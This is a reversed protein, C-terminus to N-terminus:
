ARGKGAPVSRPEYVRCGPPPEVLSPENFVELTGSSLTPFEGAVASAPIVVPAGLLDALRQVFVPDVHGDSVQLRTPGGAWDQREAVVDALEDPWLRETASYLPTGSQMLTLEGLAETPVPERMEGFDVEGRDPWYLNPRVPWSNPLTNPAPGRLQGPDRPVTPEFAYMKGTAPLVPILIGAKNLVLPTIYLRGYKDVGVADSPAHVTVGLRDALQQAFGNASQGTECALLRIPEGHWNPDAEILAALDDATLRDSGIRVYDPGGHMDITHKGPEALVTFATDLMEGPAYYARGAPTVVSNDMYSQLDGAPRTGPEGGRMGQPKLQEYDDPMPTGDDKLKKYAEWLENLDKSAQEVPKGDGTDLKHQVFDRVRQALRNLRDLAVLRQDLTTWPRPEDFMMEREDAVLADSRNALDLDPDPDPAPVPPTSPTTPGNVFADLKRLYFETDFRRRAEAEENEVIREKNRDAHITEDVALQGSRRFLYRLNFTGAVAVAVGGIIYIPIVGQNFTMAAGVMVVEMGAAQKLHLAAFAPRQQHGAPRDAEARKVPPTPPRAPHALAYAIRSNLSTNVRNAAEAEEVKATLEDLMADFARQQTEVQEAMKNGFDHDVQTVIEEYEKATFKADLYANIVMGMASRLAGTKLSDFAINWTADSVFGKSAKEGLIKGTSDAGARALNGFQEAQNAGFRRLQLKTVSMKRVIDAIKVTGKPTIGALNEIRDVLASLRKANYEDFELATQDKERGVNDLRTLEQSVVHSGLYRDVIPGVVSSIAAVGGLAVANWVPLGAPILTSAAAAGAVSPGGRHLLRALWKQHTPPRTLQAPPEAPVPGPTNNVNLRDLLPDHLAKYRLARERIRIKIRDGHGTDVNTKQRRDYWHKILTGTVSTTVTAVFAGAGAIPAGGVTAIVVSAATGPSVEAALHYRVFVRWTPYGDPPLAWAPRRSGEKVHKDVIDEVDSVARRQPGVHDDPHVGLHEVLTRMESAIRRRRLVRLRATERKARDLNRVEAQRGQDAASLTTNSGPHKTGDLLNTTPAGNMMANAQAVANAMAREIVDLGARPSVRIEFKDGGNHVIKALNKNGTSKSVVRVVFTTGDDRTVTFRKTDGPVPDISRVGADDAVHTIVDRARQAVEAKNSDANDAVGFRSHAV